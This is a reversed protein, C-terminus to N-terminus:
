PRACREDHNWITRNSAAISTGGTLYRCRFRPTDPELTRKGRQYSSPTYLPYLALHTRLTRKVCTRLAVLEGM